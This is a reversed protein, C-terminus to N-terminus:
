RRRLISAVRKMFPQKGKGAASIQYIEKWMIPISLGRNDFEQRIRQDFKEIFEMSQKTFLAILQKKVDLLMKGEDLIRHKPEMYFFYYVCFQLLLEFGKERDASVMNDISSLYLTYLQLEMNDRGFLRIVKKHDEPSQCYKIVEPMCWYIFNVYRKDDLKDVDFPERLIDDVTLSPRSKKLWLASDIMGVIDPSTIILKSKKIKRLESIFGKMDDDPETLSLSDEFGKIAWLLGDNDMMINNDLYEKLLKISEDYMFEHPLKQIYLKAASSFYQKGYDIIKDFVRRSYEEFFAAMDSAKFLRMVFEEYLLKGCERNFIQKRIELRQEEDKKDMEEAFKQLFARSIYAETIRNYFLVVMRAFYENNIGAAELIEDMENISGALTKICLDMFVGMNQTHIMQEWYYDMGAASSLVIKLYLAARKPSCNKSLNATIYGTRELTISYKLFASTKGNNIERATCYINYIGEYDPNKYDFALHDIFNFFFYCAKDILVPKGSGASISFLFESAAAVAREDMTRMVKEISPELMHFVDEKMDDDSSALAFRFASEIGSSDLNMGGLNILVFLHYCGEIGEDLESYKFYGLFKHFQEVTARSVLYGTKVIKLFDFQNGMRTIIGRDYDYVLYEENSIQISFLNSDLGQLVTDTDRVYNDWISFSIKHAIDLPFAMQVSAIWLALNRYDDRIVVPHGLAKYKVATGVMEDYGLDMRPKIFDATKSYTVLSGAPVDDLVPLAIVEGALEMDINFVPSGMIQVPYFPWYGDELLLGHLIYMKCEGLDRLRGSFICYRGSKLAFFSYYAREEDMNKYEYAYQFRFRETLENIDDESIGASAGRIEMNMGGEGFGDADKYGFIIQYVKM